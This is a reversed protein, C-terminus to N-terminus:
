LGCLEASWGEGVLVPDQETGVRSASGALCIRVQHSAVQGLGSVAAALQVREDM